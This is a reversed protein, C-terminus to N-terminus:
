KTLHFGQHFFISLMNKEQSYFYLCFELENENAETPKFNGLEFKDGSNVEMKPAQNLEGRLLKM